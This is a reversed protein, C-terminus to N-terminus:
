KNRPAGAVWFSEFCQHRQNIIMQVLQRTMIHRTLPTAVRKFCPRQYVFCIKPQDVRTSNLPVVPRMEENKCSLYHPPNEDVGRSGAAILFSTSSPAPS